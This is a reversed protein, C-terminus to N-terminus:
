NKGDSAILPAGFYSEVGMEVLLQDKPYLKPVNTSILEQKNNLLDQCPTHTLLYEFNNVIKNDISVALTQISLQANDILGTFAFKCKYVNTLHGLTNRLFQKLSINYDNEALSRLIYYFTEQSTLNRLIGHIVTKKGSPLATCSIEILLTEGNSKEYNWLLKYAGDEIIKNLVLPIEDITKNDNLQNDTSLELLISM